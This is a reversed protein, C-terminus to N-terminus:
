NKNPDGGLAIILKNYYMNSIENIDDLRKKNRTFEQQILTEYFM